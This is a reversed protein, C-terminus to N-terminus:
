IHIILPGCTCLRDVQTDDSLKNFVAEFFDTFTCKSTLYLTSNSPQDTKDGGVRGRLVHCPAFPDINNIQILIRIIFYDINNIMQLNRSYTLFKRVLEANVFYSKKPPKQARIGWHPGINGFNEGSTTSQCVFVSNSINKFSELVYPFPVFGFNASKTWSQCTKEQQLHRFYYSFIYLCYHPFGENMSGGLYTKIAEGRKRFFVCNREATNPINKSSFLTRDFTLPSPDFNSLYQKM